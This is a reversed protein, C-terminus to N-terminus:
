KRDNINTASNGLNTQLLIKFGKHPNFMNDLKSYQGGLNLYTFKYDNYIISDAQQFATSQRQGAGFFIEKQLTRDTSYFNLVEETYGYTTDQVRM